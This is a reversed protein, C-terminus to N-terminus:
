AVGAKNKMEKHEEIAKEVGRDFDNRGFARSMSLGARLMSMGKEEDKGLEEKAFEYGRKFDKSTKAM